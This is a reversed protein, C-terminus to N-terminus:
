WALHLGVSPSWGLDQHQEAAVEANLRAIQLGAGATFRTPHVTAGLRLALVPVPYLEVGGRVSLPFDVDKEVTVLATMTAAADYALGVALTRPLDEEETLQPANLNTAHAGFALTPLLEAQVGASLGLAGAQGYSPIATHHYRFDLGARLSRSTGLTLQQAWGLRAFSERFDEFGFTGIGGLVTGPQLPLLLDATGLRLEALGYSERAFVHVRRQVIAASSAPNAHSGLDGPLATTAHGLAASRASGALQAMSQARVPSTSYCPLCGCAILWLALLRARQM